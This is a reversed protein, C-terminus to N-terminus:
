SGRISAELLNVSLLGTKGAKQKDKEQKPNPVIM